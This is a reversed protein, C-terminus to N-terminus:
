DKKRVIMVLSTYIKGFSFLYFWIFTAPIGFLCIDKLKALLHIFKTKKSVVGNQGEYSLPQKNKIKKVLNFSIFRGYKFRLKMVVDFLTAPNRRIFVAEFGNSEFFLKLSKIDWRTLHRPPLDHPMLWRSGNRYPMSMAVYGRPALVKKVLDIFQIHNDIHEFVDFFTVLDYKEGNGERINVYEELTAQEINPLSLINKATNVANRDFDIGSVDWGNKKAFYLFNGTGCGVDFVKGRSDNLFNLIIRHNTAPEITPNDNAYKYREDQEYWVSGPNKFPTWFQVGCESCEYLFYEVGRDMHNDMAESNFRSGCFYCELGEGERGDFLKVYLEKTRNSMDLWTFGAVRTLGSVIMNKALKQDNLVRGMALALAEIDLPDVTIAANGAIEGLSTTKSTVVPTGSAMSELIPLGFGESLSPFVFLEAGAYIVNMDEPEVHDIFFIDEFFLSERAIDYEITRKKNTTNGVIVLKETRLHDKKRLLTYAKILTIINKHPQLRSVDLIYPGSINYKNFIKRKAEQKEIVKYDDGGGLYIREIKNLPIRYYKAVEKKADNSDAIFINVYKHFHSLIFNFMSRSFVFGNSASIDGAGHVTIVIKRAPALWFFPYVRPQFWHIIDFKNKRYKWFFLLLSIFRSGYPLKVIPVIIENTKKYLPDDVTNFHVLSIDFRDDGLLNEILRRAYLATGKSPRNDMTYSMLAIKLKANM